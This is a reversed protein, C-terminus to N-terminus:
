GQMLGINFEV